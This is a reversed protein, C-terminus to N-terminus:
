KGYIRQKLQEKQLKRLKATDQYQKWASVRFLLFDLDSGKLLKGSKAIEHLLLPPASWLDVIEMLDENYGYEEALDRSLQFKDELELPRDALVAVDYDSTKGATGKARSGFIIILKISPDKKM